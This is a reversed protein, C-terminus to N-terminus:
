GKIYCIKIINKIRLWSRVSKGCKVIHEWIWTGKRQRECFYVLVVCLIHLQKDPCNSRLTFTSLKGVTNARSIDVQHVPTMHSFPIKASFIGEYSQVIPLDILCKISQHNIHTPKPVGSCTTRTAMLIWPSCAMYFFGSLLTGGHNISWNIGQEATKLSPIHHPRICSICRKRVM